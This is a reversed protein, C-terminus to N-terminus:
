DSLDGRRRALAVAETRVSAGLKALINSVHVSATKTSIFLQQGIEKNSRGAAVLVLVEHERTTLPSNLREAPAPRDRSTPPFHSDLERLLPDAGLRLAVARADAAQTAAEDAHGTAALVAALRARSRAAEFVHGFRVFAETSERWAGVLAEPSTLSGAIWRLRADEAHLRALWAESEPGRYGSGHSAGIDAALIASTVLGPARDALTAREDRGVRSAENALQGLLLANLRIQAQFTPSEWVGSLTEIVDRHAETAAALDGLDGHLDIATGGSLVGILGEREWWGRLVGLLPLASADGRGAAVALGVANLYAEALAPCTEGSVDALRRSEDWDGTVYEVLSRMVRGAPRLAGM